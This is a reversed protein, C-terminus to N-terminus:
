SRGKIEEELKDLFAKMFKTREEAIKRGEETYLRDKLFKSKVEFEIQPSHRTKDKIRGNTKEGVLNDKIYEETDPKSYIKARNRGVWVFDRAIGLAGLADLKDADFLIKAEETKPRNDTKYRHSIICEKIHKIKDESFDLNRLIPEAMETSVIAHDTQGTPDDLEKMGGIDHLFAAAKLVELDVEKNKAFKLCLNYVRKVHEMDHASCYKLEKAVIEKIKQFKEEM